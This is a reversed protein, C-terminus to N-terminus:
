GSVITGPPVPEPVTVDLGAPMLQPASQVSDYGAVERTASVAAASVPEVNAPQDPPPQAPVPGHVTVIAAAVVTVALKVVVGVVSMTTRAPPPVPVTVDLGLPMLQPVSQESDYAEFVITVSVAVAVPPATNEPQLPPPQAPVPVQTTVILEASVTVAM